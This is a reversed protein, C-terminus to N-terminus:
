RYSSELVESAVLGSRRGEETLFEAWVPLYESVELAQAVSLNQERLFDVVGSRGTFEVTGRSDVIVNESQRNDIVTTASGRILWNYSSNALRPILDDDSAHLTGVLIVDDEDRGDLRVAEMLSELYQLEGDPSREDLHTNVLSFTFAREPTIGLCRFWGVFPPRNLLYDPDSVVYPPGLAEIRRTDYIFAFQQKAHTRGLRPSTMIAYPVGKQNIVDILKALDNTDDTRLGQVAIIDFQGVIEAIASLLHPRRAKASGFNHLNFSGVRIMGNSRNETKAMASGWGGWSSEGGQFVGQWQKGALQFADSVNHINARHYLLWGGILIGFVLAVNKWNWNPKM